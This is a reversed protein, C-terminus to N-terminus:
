VRLGQDLLCRVPTRLRLCMLVEKLSTLLGESSLPVETSLLKAPDAGLYATQM